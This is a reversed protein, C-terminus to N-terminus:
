GCLGKAPSKARQPRRRAFTNLGELWESAVGYKGAGMDVIHLKPTAVGAEAYLRSALLENMAHEPTQAEKIYFKAKTTPDQFLGGPNSGKQPGIKVMSKYDIHGSVAAEIGEKPKPM